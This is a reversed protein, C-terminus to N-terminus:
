QLYNEADSEVSIEYQKPMYTGHGLYKRIDRKVQQMEWITMIEGIQYVELDDDYIIFEVPKQCSFRSDIVVDELLKTKIRTIMNLCQIYNEQKDESYTVCIIRVRCISEEEDDKGTLLKLLIYPITKKESEKDPLSGIFVAPAREAAQIGNKPVRTLLRMEKTIEECYGKLAELLDLPTM